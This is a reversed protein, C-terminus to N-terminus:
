KFVQNRGEANGEHTQAVTEVQGCWGSLEHEIHYSRKGLKLAIKDAFPDLSADRVATGFPKSHAPFGDGHIEARRWAKRDSPCVM